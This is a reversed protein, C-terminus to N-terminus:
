AGAIVVYDGGDRIKEAEGIPAFVEVRMPDTVILQAIARGSTAESPDMLDEGIIGGFPARIEAKSLIVEMRSQDAEAVGIAEQQATVEEKAVAFEGRAREFDARSVVKRQYGKRQVSLQAGAATARAQASRLAGTAGARVAANALEARAIDSDVRAILDGAEVRQGPRVFVEALVGDVVSAVEVVRSPRIACNMATEAIEAKPQDNAQAATLTNPVTLTTQAGASTSTLIAM